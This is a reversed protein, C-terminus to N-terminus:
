VIGKMYPDDEDAEPNYEILLAACIASKTSSDLSSLQPYNYKIERPVEYTEVGTYYNRTELEACVPLFV